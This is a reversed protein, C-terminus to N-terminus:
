SAVSQPHAATQNTSHTADKAGHLARWESPSMGFAERFTRSFHTADGFGWAHAISSIPRGTVASRALERRCGEPRRVRIREGLVVGSRSLTTYLHGALINHARALASIEDPSVHHEIEVSAAASGMADRLLRLRDDPPMTATDFLQPLSCNRHSPLPEPHAM